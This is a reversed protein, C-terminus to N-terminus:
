ALDRHDLSEDRGGINAADIRLGLEGLLEPDSRVTELHAKLFARVADADLEAGAARKVESM